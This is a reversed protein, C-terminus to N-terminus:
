DLIEPGISAAKEFAQLVGVSEGLLRCAEVLFSVITRIHLEKGQNLSNKDEATLGAYWNMYNHGQTKAMQAYHNKDEESGFKEELRAEALAANAYDYLYREKTVLDAATFKEPYIDGYSYCKIIASRRAKNTGLWVGREVIQRLDWSPDCGQGQAVAPVPTASLLLIAACIVVIARPPFRFGVSFGLAKETALSM